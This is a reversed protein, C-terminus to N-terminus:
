ADDRVGTWPNVKRGRREWGLTQVLSSLLFMAQITSPRIGEEELELCVYGYASDLTEGPNRRLMDDMEDEM